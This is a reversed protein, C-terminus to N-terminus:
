GRQAAPAERPAPAPPPVKELIATASDFDFAQIARAVGELADPALRETLAGRLLDFQEQAASDSARLLRMLRALEGAVDVPAAREPRTRASAAPLSAASARVEALAADLEGLTAELGSGAKIALEVERAASSLRACGTTAALGKLTHATIRAEELGGKAVHARLQQPADGYQRLMGHLVDLVLSERGGLRKVATAVDIGPLLPPLTPPATAAPQPGTFGTRPRAQALPTVAGGVWHSLTALLQDADVPKSLFDNM